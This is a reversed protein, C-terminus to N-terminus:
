RLRRLYSEHFGYRMEIEAQVGSPAYTESFLRLSNTRLSELHELLQGAQSPLSGNLAALMFESYFIQLDVGEIWFDLNHANRTAKAKLEIFLSRAQAHGTLLECVYETFKEQCGFTQCNTEILSPLPDEGKEWRARAQRLGKESALNYGRAAQLVTQTFSHSEVGYFEVTYVRGLEEANYPEENRMAYATAFTSFLCVEPHAYRVAWSTVINGIGHSTGKRAFHFCNPLHLPYNPIGMMDGDCRNAPATIVDFGHACLADTTYFAPFTGDHRTQEDVLHPELHQRFEAGIVAEYQHWSILRNLTGEERNGGWLRFTRPRQETTSYDWDVLVVNHPIKSLMDPHSLAVDAWLLPRLGHSSLHEFLPQMHHLYLGGVGNQQVFPACKESRGLRWTEDGGMHFYERPKFVEIIEDYLDIILQRAELSLPDYQDYGEPVERLHAYAPKTLVCEAHGLSQMFPIVEIGKARCAKVFEATQEGTFAEKHAIDSHRAFRLKDEIEYLVANFGWPKLRDVMTDMYERRWMPLKLDFHYALIKDAM